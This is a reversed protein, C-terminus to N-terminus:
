VYARPIHGWGRIVIRKRRANVKRDLITATSAAGCVIEWINYWDAKRTNARFGYVPILCKATNLSVRNPGFRVIPGCREHLKHMQHYRDGVFPLLEAMKQAIPGPYRSLPHFALRYM